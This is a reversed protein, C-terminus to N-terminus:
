WAKGGDWKIAVSQGIRTIMNAPLGEKKIPVAICTPHYCWSSASPGYAAWDSKTYGIMREAEITIVSRLVSVGTKKLFRYNEYM